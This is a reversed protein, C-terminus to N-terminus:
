VITRLTIGDGPKTRAIPVGRYDKCQFATVLRVMPNKAVLEMGLAMQASPEMLFALPVAGKRKAEDLMWDLTAIVESM